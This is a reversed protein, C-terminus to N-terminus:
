TGNRCFANEFTLMLQRSQSSQSATALETTQSRSAWFSIARAIVFREPGSAIM